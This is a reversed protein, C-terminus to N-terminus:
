SVLVRRRLLPLKARGDGQRKILKVRHVHGEVAGNSWSMTLAAEVAAHDSVLGNALSIFPPLNSAQADALWTELAAVDRTQVLTRFRHTLEYGRALDADTALVHALARQEESSLQDPPRLCLWRM